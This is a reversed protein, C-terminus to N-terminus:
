FSDKNSIMAMLKGIQDYLTKIQEDKSDITAQLYKILSEQDKIETAKM